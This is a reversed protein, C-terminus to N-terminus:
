NTTTQQHIVGNLYQIRLRVYERYEKHKTDYYQRYYRRAIKKDRYYNDCDRALFYLYVEEEPSYEIAKKWAAIAEKLKNQEDFVLALNKFYVGVNESIGKEIAAQYEIESQDLDGIGKYALALQYHTLESNEEKRVIENLHFICSDFQELHLYAAGIMKQYYQSTDRLSMAHSITSVVNEYEKKFHLINSKTYLLKLNDPALKLGKNIIAEAAPAQRLQLLLSSLENIVVLDKENLEHAQSFYAIARIPEKLRLSMFANQRFYFSNTSDIALLEQYCDSAKSYNLEKEYISGLNSWANVDTSDKKLLSNYSFKAENFDGLKMYCFALKQLYQKNQTEVRHCEYFHDLAKQYQYNSLADMGLTYQEKIDITNTMQGNVFVCGSLLMAFLLTYKM